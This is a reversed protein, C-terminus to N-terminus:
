TLRSGFPGNILEVHIRGDQVPEITSAIEVMRRAAKEPDAYLRPEAYKMRNIGHACSRLAAACRRRAQRLGQLVFRPEIDSLRVDEPWSDASMAISHSCRYDTCYVLIGTPGGASRMAGFTIKQPRM